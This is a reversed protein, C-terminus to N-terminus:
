LHKEDLEEVNHKKSIDVKEFVLKIINNKLTKYFIQVFNLYIIILLVEDM